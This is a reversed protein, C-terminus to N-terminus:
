RGRERVIMRALYDAIDQVNGGMHIGLMAQIRFLQLIAAQDPIPGTWGLDPLAAIVQRAVEIGPDPLPLLRGSSDEAAGGSGPQGARLVTVIQDLSWGGSFMEHLDPHIVPRLGNALLLAPLLLYVNLRGNADEFPHMVHLRRVVRAIAMLRASDDAAAGIEAYYADLAADVLGPAEDRRYRVQLVMRNGILSRGLGTLAESERPGSHPSQSSGDGPPGPQDSLAAVLPRGAIIEALMDEALRETHTPSEFPEDSPEGAWSPKDTLGATVLDHLGKYAAASLREFRRDLRDLVQKFARLMGQQFGSSRDLDYIRGPDDPSTLM